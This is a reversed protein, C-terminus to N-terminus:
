CIASHSPAALSMRVIGRGPLVVGWIGLSSNNLYRTVCSLFLEGYKRPFIICTKKPFSYLSTRKHVYVRKKLVTELPWLIPFISLLLVEEFTFNLINSFQHAICPTVQVASSDTNYWMSVKSSSYRPGREVETRMLPYSM